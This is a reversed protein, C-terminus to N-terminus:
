ERAPASDDPEAGCGCRGCLSYGRRIASQESIIRCNEKDKLCAPSYHYLKEGRDCFVVVKPPLLTKLVISTWYFLMVAFFGGFAAETYRKQVLCTICLVLILVALVGYLVLRRIMERREDPNSRDISGMKGKIDDTTYKKIEAM